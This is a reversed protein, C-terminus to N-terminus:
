MELGVAAYDLCLMAILTRRGACIVLIAHKPAVEDM